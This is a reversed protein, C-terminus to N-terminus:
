SAKAVKELRAVVTSRPKTQSQEALIVLRATDTDDGALEVTEDANLGSAIVEAFEEVVAQEAPGIIVEGPGGSEEDDGAPEYPPEDFAPVGEVDRGLEYETESPVEDGGVANLERLRALSDATITEPITNGEVLRVWSGDELKVRHFRKTLTLAM